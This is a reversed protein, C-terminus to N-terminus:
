AAVAQERRRVAAVIAEASTPNAARRALLHEAGLWEITEGFVATSGADILRDVVEARSRIRCWDQRRM